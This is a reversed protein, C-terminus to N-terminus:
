RGTARRAPRARRRDRDALVGLGRGLQAHRDRLPVDRQERERRREPGGAAGAERQQDADRRGGVQRWQQRQLQERRHDDARPAGTTPGSSANATIAPIGRAASTSLSVPIEASAALPTTVAAASTAQRHSRGCTADRLRRLGGSSTGGPGGGSGDASSKKARATVSGSPIRWPM